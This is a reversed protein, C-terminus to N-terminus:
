FIDVLVQCSSPIEGEAQIEGNKGIVRFREALHDTKKFTITIDKMPYPSPNECTIILTNGERETRVTVKERVLWWEALEKMTCIWTDQGKLFSLFEELRKLNEPEGIEPLHTLFVFVGGREHYRQFVNLAKEARVTPDGQSTIELLRMGSPHYPYMLRRRLSPVLMTEVTTPPLDLDSGYLFGLRDLARFTAESGSFCPSRHGSPPFGLSALIEKGQRIIEYQDDESLFLMEAGMKVGRGQNKACFHAFGHQAIEHGDARLKEMMEAQGSGARLPHEGLLDPVVFFTGRVGAEKLLLRLREIADVPTGASLDDNTFVSASRNGGPYLGLEIDDNELFAVPAGTLYDRWIYSTNFGIWGLLVVVLVAATWITRKFRERM